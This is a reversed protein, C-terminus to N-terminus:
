DRSLSLINANIGIFKAVASYKLVASVCDYSNYTVVTVIGELEVVKEL